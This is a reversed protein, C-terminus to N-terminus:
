QHKLLIIGKFLKYNIFKLYHFGPLVLKSYFLRLFAVQSYIKEFHCHAELKPFPNWLNTNYYWKIPKHWEWSSGPDWDRLSPLRCPSRICLLSCKMVMRKLWLMALGNWTVKRLHDRDPPSSQSAFSEMQPTAVLFSAQSDTLGHLLQLQLTFQM